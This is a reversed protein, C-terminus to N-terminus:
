RVPSVCDERQSVQKEELLERLAILLKDATYPKSLFSNVGLAKLEEPRFSEEADQDLGSSAIIKVRPDIEKLVRILEMGDMVPMMNDTLVLEIAQNNRIFVALAERGNVAVEVQYGHNELMERTASM